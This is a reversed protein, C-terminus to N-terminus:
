LFIGLKNKVKSVLNKVQDPNAMGTTDALTINNMGLSLYEDVYRLVIEESINGEFPCGFSTAVTGNM